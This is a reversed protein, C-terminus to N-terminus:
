DQLTARGLLNRRLSRAYWNGISGPLFTGLAIAWVDITKGALKRIPGVVVEQFRQGVGDPGYELREWALALAGNTMSGGSVSSVRALRPLYGAENLRWLAGLHFLM